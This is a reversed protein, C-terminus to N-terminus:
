VEESTALAIFREGQNNVACYFHYVVNNEKVVYSKHAYRNEWEFESKILPEGNWVTWDVLNKSCAFTNFSISELKSIRLEIM